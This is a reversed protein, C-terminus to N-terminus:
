HEPHLAGGLFLSTLFVFIYAQLFAVFLELFSLAVVGLVSAFTVPWFLAGAHRAMVIFGLIVALVTHGGLMNAFLRVALVSSKILHSFVEIGAILVVLPLSAYWALGTHPVYSKLYGLPGLKVVASGHIVLFCCLALAGTVAISATPSAAFPVMGLLNLFLIFLFLTWLFPVFRDADHEGIYPRAVENRVFTLLTEFANWFAGRPPSGDRARRALRGPWVYIGLIVLAAIVELVMFKTLQFRHNGIYFHLRSLDIVWGGGLSEFIVWERSDSVHDLPNAAM